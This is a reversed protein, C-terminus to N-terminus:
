LSTKDEVMERRLRKGLQQAMVLPGRDGFKDVDAPWLIYNAPMRSVARPIVPERYGLTAFPWTVEGGGLSIRVSADSIKDRTCLCLDL